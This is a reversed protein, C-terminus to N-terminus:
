EKKESWDFPYVWQKDYKEKLLFIDGWLEGNISWLM